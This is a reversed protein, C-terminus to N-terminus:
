VKVKGEIFEQFEEYNGVAFGTPSLLIGNRKGFMLVCVYKLYYIREIQSYEVTFVCKGEEMTISEGFRVITECNQGNHLKMGSDKIQRVAVPGILLLSGALILFCVAYVAMFVPNKDLCSLVFMMMSLLCIVGGMRKTSRFLAQNVYEKIMNDDILYRNEFYIEREETM